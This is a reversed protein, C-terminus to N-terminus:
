SAGRGAQTTHLYVAGVAGHASVRAAFGPVIRDVADLYRRDLILVHSDSVALLLHRAGRGGCPRSEPLCAVRGDLVVYLFAIHSGITDIRTGASFRMQDAVGCLWRIQRPKLAAFMPTRLLAEAKVDLVGSPRLLRPVHRPRPNEPQRTAFAAGVLLVAASMLLGARLGVRDSVAGTLAPGAVQGVAFVVTLASLAGLLAPAPVVARAIAAVAGAVSSLTLGFLAASVLVVVLSDGAALLATSGAQVALIGALAQGGRVRALLRPWVFSAIFAAAGLTAWQAVAAGTGADLAALYALAFTMYAIYGLGFLFYAVM